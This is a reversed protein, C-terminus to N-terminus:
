ARELTVFRYPHPNRADAPHSETSVTRWDNAAWAPFHADGDFEADIETLYLRDARDLLAAYLQAGGIVMLEDVAGAAALAADISTVTTCGEARYGPDRSLVLNLRGPLAFGISEHTRRGMLVPKGMTTRKFHALDAPLHWPMRNDLGIVRNRGMAAILSLRM